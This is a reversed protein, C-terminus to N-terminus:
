VGPSLMATVGMFSLRLTGAATSANVYSSGTVVVNGGARRMAVFPM